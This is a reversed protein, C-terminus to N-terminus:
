AEPPSLRQKAEKLIRGYDARFPEALLSELAGSVSWLTIREAADETLHGLKIDLAEHRHVWEFLVLAEDASMRLYVADDPGHSAEMTGVTGRVSRVSRCM